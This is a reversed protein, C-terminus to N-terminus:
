KSDDVKCNFYKKSGIVKLTYRSCHLTYDRYFILSNKGIVTFSNSDNRKSKKSHKKGKNRSKKSNQSLKKFRQLVKELLRNDINLNRIVLM